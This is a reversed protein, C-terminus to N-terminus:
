PSEFVAEGYAMHVLRFGKAYLDAFVESVQVAPKFAPETQQPYQPAGFSSSTCHAILGAYGFTNTGNVDTYEMKEKWHVMVVQKQIPIIPTKSQSIATVAIATIVVLVFVTKKM